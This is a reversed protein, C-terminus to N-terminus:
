NILSALRDSSDLHRLANCDLTDSSELVRMIRFGVVKSAGNMKMPYRVACRQRWPLAFSGGGRVAQPDNVDSPLRVPDDVPLGAYGVLGFRDLCIECVNGHIDYLGLANPRRDGAVVTPMLKGKGGLHDSWSYDGALSFDDGFSWATHTAARAAYEWEAETPLRYPVSEEGSLWRCFEMADCADVSVVPHGDSIEYGPNQWSTSPAPGAPPNSREAQTVYGTAQVFKRYQAVTIECAGMRFPRTIRVARRPLMERGNAPHTSFVLPNALIDQDTGGMWFRGPPILVMDIGISNTQIVPVGLHDAWEQQSRRVETPSLPSDVANVALPRQSPWWAVMLLIVASLAIAGALWGIRRQTPNKIASRFASAFDNMTAFRDDPDKQLGCMVVRDISKGLSRVLQSPAKFIGLPKQGTLMEYSIVALSYQDVRGDTPLRHRQEPALYDASGLIQGSVTLTGIEELSSALGFDSVKVNGDRDLLVNEPKLDRHVIGRDHLWTVAKVISTVIELTSQADLPASREILHRLNDGDVYEMALFQVGDDEGQDLIKVINPHSLSASIQRERRFRVEQDGAQLGRVNRYCKVAVRKGESDLATFVDGMGGSALHAVLRYGGITKREGIQRSRETHM